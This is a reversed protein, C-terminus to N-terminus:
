KSTKRGSKKGKEIPKIEKEPIQNRIFALREKETEFHHIEM